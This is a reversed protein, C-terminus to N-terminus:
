NDYDPITRNYENELENDEFKELSHLRDKYKRKEKGKSSVIKKDLKEMINERAVRSIRTTQKLLLKNKLKEHLKEKYFNLENSLKQSLSKNKPM